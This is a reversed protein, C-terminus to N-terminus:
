KGVLLTHPNRKGWMRVLMQQQHHDQHYSNSCPHPPIKTHNHNANGKHGLITLIKEHTNKKKGKKTMQTEEKSFTRNQETAGM